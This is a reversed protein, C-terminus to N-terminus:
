LSFFFYICTNVCKNEPGGPMECNSGGTDGEQPRHNGSSQILSQMRKSMGLEPWEHAGHCMNEDVNGVYGSM